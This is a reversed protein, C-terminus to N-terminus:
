LHLVWIVYDGEQEKEGTDYLSGKNPFCRRRYNGPKVASSQM